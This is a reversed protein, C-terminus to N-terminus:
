FVKRGLMRGLRKRELATEISNKNLKNKTINNIKLKHSQIAQTLALQKTFDISCDTALDTKKRLYRPLPVLRGNRTLSSYDTSKILGKGIGPRLSMMAVGSSTVVGNEDVNDFKETIYSTVYNITADTVESFTHFGLGWTKDFIPHTFLEGQSTRRYSVWEQRPPAYGIIIMHWHYRGGRPGIEGACYYRFTQPHIAKRLRKLFSQIDKKVFSQRENEPSYTLTLFTSSLGRRLCDDVELGIRTAWDRSKNVRCNICRGCPVEVIIDNWPTAPEDKSKRRWPKLKIPHLCQM